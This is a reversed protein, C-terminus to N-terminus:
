QSLCTTDGKPTEQCNPRTAHYDPTVSIPGEAMRTVTMPLGYVDALLRPTLVAGPRGQALIAGRRMVAVRDALAAALTLDHLVALVGAGARAAGHAAHLVAAQHAPDLSATPEDLLLWRGGGLWRGAGLQAMARAMHARHREGGSLRDIPRHRLRGLGMAAIAEDALSRADDPPVARPIALSVLAELTFAAASAPTQELVARRLALTAPSLRAPDDGDIRVAGEQPVIAGSLCGLLSSKGAGNPGVLALVEGTTLALDVGRLVDAGGLRLSIGRAELM